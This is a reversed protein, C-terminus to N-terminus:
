KCLMTSNSASALANGMMFEINVGVLRKIRCPPGQAPEVRQHSAYRRWYLLAVYSRTRPRMPYKLLTYGSRAHRALQCSCRLLPRPASHGATPSQLQMDAAESQSKQCHCSNNDGRIEWLPYVLPAARGVGAEWRGYALLSESVNWHWCGIYM